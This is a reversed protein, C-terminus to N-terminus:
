ELTVKPMVNLSSGNDILVRAIVHDLCKVSVHLAKNHGRGEVPIEDDSFTLFDNITINNVIREFKDLSINQEVHAGSLIKMLLKRHATSHMLSELLSIHAPMRNLQEVVKYESQQKFKLFEGADEDSIEKQKDKRCEEEDQITKETLIEKAKEIGDNLKSRNCGEKRLDPPTFFCGSRTIGGLGSINEVIPGEHVYTNEVQQGEGLEHVGCKWPVVRDSEYPFSSPTTIV